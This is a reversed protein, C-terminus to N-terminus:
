IFPFLLASLQSQIPTSTPSNVLSLIIVSFLQYSPRHWYALSLALNGVQDTPANTPLVQHCFTRLFLGWQASAQQPWQTTGSFRCNRQATQYLPSRSGSSREPCWQLFSMQSADKVDPTLNQAKTGNGCLQRWPRSSERQLYDCFELQHNIGEKRKKRLPTPHISFQEDLGQNRPIRPTQMQFLPFSDSVIEQFLVLYSSPLDLCLCFCFCPEHLVHCEERPTQQSIEGTTQCGSLSVNWSHAETFSTPDQVMAPGRERWDGSSALHCVVSMASTM